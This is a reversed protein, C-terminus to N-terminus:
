PLNDAEKNLTKLIYPLRREVVGLIVVDPDVQDIWYPDVPSKAVYVVKSYHLSLFQVLAVGYSDRFVLAVKDNGCNENETVMTNQYIGGPAVFRYAKDSNKFRYNPKEDAYDMSDIGLLNTLDGERINTNWIEFAEKPFPSLGLEDFTQKCFARYAQYAGNLNWHSDFKFYLQSEEKKEVLEKRVDFLPMGKESFYGVAQDALSTEGRVQMKMTLPLLNQYISHKNPWFGVAYQIGREALDEKLKSQEQFANELQETSALNRHAYSSYIGGDSANHENFFLFGEEGFQVLEPQPSDRFLGIKLKSAWNIVTPRLGFNDNYYAEYERSFSENIAWEPRQALERKEKTETEQELGLLKVVPPAAIILVFIGIYPQFKPDTTKVTKLLFSIFAAVAFVLALIFAVASDVLPQEKALNKIVPSIDFDSVFFPDYSNSVTKTIFKGDKKSVCVNKVFSESIDYSYTRDLAKLHVASIRIPMQSKNNGIDIRLKNIATDMPVVFEVTQPRDEGKIKAVVSHEETFRGNGNTYFLQFTDNQLVTANLSVTIETPREGTVGMFFRASVFVLLAILVASAYKKVM